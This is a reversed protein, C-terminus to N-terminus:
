AFCKKSNTQLEIWPMFSVTKFIEKFKLYRYGSLSKVRWFKRKKMLEHCLQWKFIVIMIFMIVNYATMKFLFINKLIKYRYQFRNLCDAVETTCGKQVIQLRTKLLLALRYFCIVTRRDTQWGRKPPFTIKEAGLQSLAKSSISTEDKNEWNNLKQYLKM